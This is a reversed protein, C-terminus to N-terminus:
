NGGAANLPRFAAVARAIAAALEPALAELAKGNPAAVSSIEVAIAPAMISRLQRVAAAAPVDPSGRFKQGLLVQLLEALRRSKEAYPVQAEEWRVLGTRVSAAEGPPVRAPAVYYARVTGVRGLSSVHLTLFVAGRQANARAARDDFSPNDNGERTLMAQLGQKELEGRLIKAISLVADKEIVGGPGRAGNDTGGHGPDIVIM